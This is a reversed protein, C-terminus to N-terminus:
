NLFHKGLTMFDLMINSIITIRINTHLIRMLCSTVKPNVTDLITLTMGREQSFQVGDALSSTEQLGNQEPGQVQM